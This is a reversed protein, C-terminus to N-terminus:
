DLDFVEVLGVGSGANAGRVIATYSGPALTAVVAAENANPPAVTSALIEAQQPSTSWDDNSMLINGSADRLELTPNALAGSVANPGVGLSPGLARIIVKKASEGQVMLGGILADDGVGVQGRTSINVLRSSNADLEYAEVLAVGTTDNAGHVVATYSGPELTAVIASESFDTPPITSAIIDNMQASQQWNDNQAVIAGTSDHLELVTDGLVGAVGGAALSPGIARFILTKPESGAIIFGGILVNDGTGVRM